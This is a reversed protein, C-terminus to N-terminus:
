VFVHPLWSFSFAAGAGVLQGASVARELCPGPAAVCFRAVSPPVLFSFEDTPPPRILWLAVAAECMNALTYALCSLPPVGGWLNAAFSAAAMGAFASIRPRVHAPM